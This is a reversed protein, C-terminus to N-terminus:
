TRAVPRPSASREPSDTRPGAPADLLGVSEQGGLIEWIAPLGTNAEEPGESPAPQGAFVLADELRALVNAARRFLQLVSTM